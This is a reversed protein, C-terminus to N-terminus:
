HEFFYYHNTERVRKERTAQRAYSERCRTILVGSSHLPSRSDGRNSGAVCPVCVAYKIPDNVGGSGVLPKDMVARQQLEENGDRSFCESLRVALALLYTAERSFASRPLLKFSASRKPSYVLPYFRLALVCAAVQAHGERVSFSGSM